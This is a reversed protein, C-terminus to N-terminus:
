RTGTGEGAPVGGSKTNQFLSRPGMRPRPEQQGGDRSREGRVITGGGQEPEVRVFILVWRDRACRGTNNGESCMTFRVYDILTQRGKRFDLGRLFQIM